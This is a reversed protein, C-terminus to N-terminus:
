IQYRLDLEGLMYSQDADSIFIPHRKVSKRAKKKNCSSIPIEAVDKISSMDLCPHFITCNEIIISEQTGFQQWYWKTYNKMIILFEPKVIIEGAKIVQKDMTNNNQLM